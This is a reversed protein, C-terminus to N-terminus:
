CCACRRVVKPARRRSGGRPRTLVAGGIRNRRVAGGGAHAGPASRDRRGLLSEAEDLSIAISGNRRAVAYEANKRM